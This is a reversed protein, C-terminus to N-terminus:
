TSRPSRRRRALPAGPRRWRPVGRAGRLRALGTVIAQPCAPMVRVHTTVRPARRHASHEARVSPGVGTPWAAVQAGRPIREAYPIDVRGGVGLHTGLHACYAALLRAVGTETM